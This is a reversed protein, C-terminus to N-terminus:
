VLIAKEIKEKWRAIDYQMNKIEEPTYPIKENPNFFGYEDIWYGKKIKEKNEAIQRLYLEYERKYILKVKLKLKNIMEVYNKVKYEYVKGQEKFAVSVAYHSKSSATTQWIAGDPNQALFLKEVKAFSLKNM